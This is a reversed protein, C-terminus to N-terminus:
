AGQRRIRLHLEGALVSLQTIDFDALEEASPHDVGLVEQLTRIRGILVGRELGERRGKVEGRAEGITQGDLRAQEVDRQAQERLAQEIDLHAQEVDLRAQELRAAEDMQFKLRANYQMREEPTKPIMELVEAAEAFEQDHFMQLVDNMSLREANIMFYAWQEILGYGSINQVTAVLKSLQLLHVQVDDALVRGTADRLRFDMHLKDEPFLAKTLVCIVIAPRLATYSKGETLQDGYIRAVHYILRRSMGAPLTTQMEINFMRGTQDVALFDLISLKDTEDGKELYPNQITVATIPSSLNLISNLFHITIRTHEPNGFVLKFAFDVTPSIGIAM